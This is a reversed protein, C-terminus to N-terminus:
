VMKLYQILQDPSYREYEKKQINKEAIEMIDRAFNYIFKRKNLYSILERILSEKDSSNLPIKINNKSIKILIIELINNSDDMSKKKYFERQEDTVSLIEDLKLYHYILSINPYSNENNLRSFEEYIKQLDWTINKINLLKLLIKKESYAIASSLIHYLKMEFNDKETLKKKSIFELEKELLIFVCDWHQRDAAVIIASSKNLEEYSTKQLASILQKTANCSAAIDLTKQIDDEEFTQVGGKHGMRINRKPECSSRYENEKAIAYEENMPNDSSDDNLFSYSVPGFPNQNEDLCHSLEHILVEDPNISEIQNLKTDPDQTIVFYNNEFDVFIIHNQIDLHCCTNKFEDHNAITIIKDELFLKKIIKIGIENTLIQEVIKKIKEIQPDDGKIIISGKSEINTSFILTNDKKAFNFITM